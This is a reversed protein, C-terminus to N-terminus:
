RTRERDTCGAGYPFRLARGVLLLEGNEGVSRHGTRDSAKLPFIASGIELVMLVNELCVQVDTGSFNFTFDLKGGRRM